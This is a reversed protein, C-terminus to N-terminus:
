TYNQKPLEVTLVVDGIQLRITTRGRRRRISFRM